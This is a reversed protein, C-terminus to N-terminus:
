VTWESHILCILKREGGVKELAKSFLTNKVVILQIDREFCMRRLKATQEANLGSIDAVYYHPYQGLKEAISEIIITKEERTM